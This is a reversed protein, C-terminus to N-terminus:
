STKYTPMYTIYTTMYFYKPTLTKKGLVRRCLSIIKTNGQERALVVYSTSCGHHEEEQTSKKPIKLELKEIKRDVRREGVRSHRASTLM